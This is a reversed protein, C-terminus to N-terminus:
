QITDTKAPQHLVKSWTWDGGVDLLATPSTPSTPYMIAAWLYVSLTHEVPLLKEEEM